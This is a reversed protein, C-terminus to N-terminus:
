HGMRVEAVGLLSISVETSKSAIEEHTFEQQLQINSAPVGNPGQLHLPYGPYEVRRPIGSKFQCYGLYRKSCPKGVAILTKPLRSQNLQYISDRARSNGKITIFSLNVHVSFNFKLVHTGTGLSCTDSLVDQM